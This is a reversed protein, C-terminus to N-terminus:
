EQTKHFISSSIRMANIRELEYHVFGSIPHKQTVFEVRVRGLTQNKRRKEKIKRKM